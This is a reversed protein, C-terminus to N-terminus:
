EGAFLAMQRITFETCKHYFVCIYDLDVFTDRIRASESEATCNTTVNSHFDGCNLVLIHQKGRLFASCYRLYIAAQCM